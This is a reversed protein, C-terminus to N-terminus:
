RDPEKRPTPLTVSFRMVYLGVHESNVLDLGGGTVKAAECMAEFKARMSGEDGPKDITDLTQMSEPDWVRISWSM